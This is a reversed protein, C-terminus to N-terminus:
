SATRREQIGARLRIALAKEDDAFLRVEGIPEADGRFALLSLPRSLVVDLTTQGGIVVALVRDPGEREVRVTRAGEYPRRRTRVAEIADWPLLLCVTGGARVSLGVEDVTHPHVRYSALMGVMWLVGYIGAILLVQRVGEWPVLLHVVPVEIASVVIFAWLVATIAGVYPFPEGGPGRRRSVWRSFGRGLVLEYRPVRWLLSRQAPAPGRV